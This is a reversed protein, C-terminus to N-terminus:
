LERSYYHTADHLLNDLNENEEAMRKEDWQFRTQMAKAIIDRYKQVREIDFYLSGTRRVIFDDLRQVMEHDICYSLEALLLRIEPDQESSESFIRLIDESQRGYNTVLYWGHYKELGAKMLRRGTNEIYKEVDGESGIPEGGISL